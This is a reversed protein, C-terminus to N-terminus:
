RGASSRTLLDSITVFAYGREGLGELISRLAAREEGRSEMEVHLLIISGPAVNALVHDAMQGASRYWTDPELTWLVTTRETRALYWPLMVLRNGYPPRFHIPADAGAARIASDTRLVETRVTSLRMLVM